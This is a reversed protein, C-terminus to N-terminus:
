DIEDRPWSPDAVIQQRFGSYEFPTKFGGIVSIQMDKFCTFPRKYSTSQHLVAVYTQQRLSFSKTGYLTRLQSSTRAGVSSWDTVARPWRNCTAIGRRCFSCALLYIKDIKTRNTNIHMNSIDDVCEICWPFTKYVVVIINLRHNSM